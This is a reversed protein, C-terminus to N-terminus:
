LKSVIGVVDEGFVALSVGAGCLGTLLDVLILLGFRSYSGFM